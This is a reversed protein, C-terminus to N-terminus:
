LVSDRSVLYNCVTTSLLRVLEDRLPQTQILVEVHKAEILRPNIIRHEQLQAQACQEIRQIEAILFDRYATVHAPYIVELRLEIM